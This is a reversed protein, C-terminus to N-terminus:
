KSGLVFSEMVVKGGAVIPADPGPFEYIGVKGEDKHLMAWVKGAAPVPKLEVTVDQNFGAKLASFGVVPGPRGDSDTHIVLWGGGPSYVQPVVVRGDAPAQDRVRLNALQLSGRNHVSPPQQMGGAAGTPKEQAQLDMAVFAIGIWMAAAGVPLLRKM